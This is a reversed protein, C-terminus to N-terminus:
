SLSIRPLNCGGASYPRGRRNRMDDHDAGSIGVNVDAISTPYFWRARLFTMNFYTNAAIIAAESMVPAGIWNALACAAVAWSFAAAFSALIFAL